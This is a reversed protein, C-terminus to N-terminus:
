FPQDCNIECNILDCTFFPGNCDTCIQGCRVGSCCHHYTGFDYVGAATQVMDFSSTFRFANVNVNASALLLDQNGVRMKVVIRHDTFRKAPYPLVLKQSFAGSLGRVVALPEAGLNKSEVEPLPTKRGVFLATHSPEAWVELQDAAPGSSTPRYDISLTYWSGENTKKVGGAVEIAGLGKEAASAFCQEPTERGAGQSPIPVFILVAVGLCLLTRLM